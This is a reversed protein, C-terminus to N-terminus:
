NGDIRQSLYMLELYPSLLVERMWAYVYLVYMDAPLCNSMCVSLVDEDVVPRM